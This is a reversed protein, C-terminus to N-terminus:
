NTATACPTGETRLEGRAARQELADWLSGRAHEEIWERHERWEAPTMRRQCRKLEKAICREVWACLSEADNRRQGSPEPLHDRQDPMTPSLRRSPRTRGHPRHTDAELPPGGRWRTWFAVRAAAIAEADNAREQLPEPM